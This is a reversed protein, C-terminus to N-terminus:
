KIYTGYNWVIKLDNFKPNMPNPFIYGRIKFIKMHVDESALCSHIYNKNVSVFVDADVRKVVYAWNDVSPNKSKFIQIEFTEISPNM